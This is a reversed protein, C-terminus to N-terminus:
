GNGGRAVSPENWAKLDLNYQKGLRENADRYFERLFEAEEAAMDPTTGEGVFAGALKLKHERVKSTMTGLGISELLSSTGQWARFAMRHVSPWRIVKTVNHRDPVLEVDGDDLGLFECVAKWETAPQSSMNESLIFHVRERPVRDTWRDLYDAYNGYKLIKKKGEQSRVLEPFDAEFIEGRSLAFNYQSWARHVPNRLVFVLRVNPLVEVARRAAQGSYLYWVSCEGISQGRAASEFLKEYWDQGRKFRASFYNPEKLEPMFVSPHRRLWRDLATSGCKPAGAILFDPLRGM